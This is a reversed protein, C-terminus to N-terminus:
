GTRSQRASDGRQAQFCASCYVPRDSRPQFPVQTNEGCQACVAPFMERDRGPIGSGYGRSEFGRGGPANGRKARRKAICEVCRSPEHMHGRAAYAEQESLDFVFSEKCDRCTLTKDTM